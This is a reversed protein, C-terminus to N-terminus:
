ASSRSRKAQCAILRVRNGPEQRSFNGGTGCPNGNKVYEVDPREATVTGNWYWYERRERQSERKNNGLFM